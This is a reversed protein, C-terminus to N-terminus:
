KRSIKCTASVQRMNFMRVKGGFASQQRGAGAGTEQALAMNFACTWKEGDRTLKFTTSFGGVEVARLLVLSDEQLVWVFNTTGLKEPKGIPGNYVEKRQATGGPSQM